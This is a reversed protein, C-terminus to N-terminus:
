YSLGSGTRYRRGGIPSISPVPRQAKAAPMIASRSIARVVKKIIAEFEVWLGVLVIVAGCLTIPEM